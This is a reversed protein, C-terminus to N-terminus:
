WWRREESLLFASPLLAIASEALDHHVAKNQTSPELGLSEADKSFSDSLFSIRLHEIEGTTRNPCVFTTSSLNMMQQVPFTPIVFLSVDERESQIPM